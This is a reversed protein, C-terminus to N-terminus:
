EEKQCHPLGSTSHFVCGRHPEHPDVRQCALGTATDGLRTQCTM